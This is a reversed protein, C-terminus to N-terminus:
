NIRLEFDTDYYVILEAFLNLDYAVLLFAIVHSGFRHLQQLPKIDDKFSIAGFLVVAM